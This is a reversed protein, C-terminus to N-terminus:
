SIPKRSTNRFWGSLSSIRHPSRSTIACSTSSGTTTSGVREDLLEV